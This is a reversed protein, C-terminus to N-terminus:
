FELGVNVSPFYHFSETDKDLGFTFAPEIYALEIPQWKYFLELSLIPFSTDDEGSYSPCSSCSSDREVWTDSGIAWGAYWGLGLGEYADKVMYRNGYLLALVNLESIGSGGDESYETLFKMRRLSYYKYSYNFPPYLGGESKWVLNIQQMSAEDDLDSNDLLDSDDNMEDPIINIAVSIKKDEATFFNEAFSNEAMLLFWCATFLFLHFSTQNKM